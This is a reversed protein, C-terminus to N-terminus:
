CKWYFNSSERFGDAEKNLGLMFALSSENFLTIIDANGTSIVISGLGM